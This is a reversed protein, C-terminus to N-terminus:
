RGVPLLPWVSGKSKQIISYIRKEVIEPIQPNMRDFVPQIIPREPQELVTTNKSLPVGAAWFARRMKDTVRQRKRYVGPTTGFREGAQVAHAFKAASPTLFGIRVVQTEPYYKFRVAQGLRGFPSASGVGGRPAKWRNFMSRKFASGQAELRKQKKSIKKLSLRDYAKTPVNGGDMLGASKAQEMRRYQRMLSVREWRNGTSVGGSRVATAIEHRYLWGVHRLARGFEKPFHKALWEMQGQAEDEVRCLAMSGHLKAM